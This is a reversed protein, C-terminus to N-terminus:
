WRDVRLYEQLEKELLHIIEDLLAHYRPTYQLLNNYQQEYYEDPSPGYWVRHLQELEARFQRELHQLRQQTGQLRSIARRIQDTDMYIRM